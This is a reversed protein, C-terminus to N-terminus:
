VNNWIGKKIVNGTLIFSKAVYIFCKGFETEVVERNYCGSEIFDLQNLIRKNVKYVEGYVVGEGRKVFPFRLGDYMVFDDIWCDGLLESNGLFSNLPGDSKLTGYVFVKM